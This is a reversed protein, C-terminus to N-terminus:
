SSNNNIETWVKHALGKVTKKTKFLVFGFSLLVCGNIMIVM